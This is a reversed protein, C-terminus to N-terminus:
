VYPSVQVTEPLQDAGLKLLQRNVEKKAEISLRDFNARTRCFVDVAWWVIINHFEEPMEPITSDATLEQPLLRCPTSFLWNNGVSPTSPAPYLRISRNPQESYFQPKSATPSPRRTYIGGNFEQWPIFWVPMDPNNISGDDRVNAYRTRAQAVYWLVHAFRPEQAQFNSTTIINVNPTLTVSVSGRLWRWDRHHMQLMLWAEKVAEVIDGLTGTQGVTTTPLLSPSEDGVRLKRHVQQCLQLFTSM